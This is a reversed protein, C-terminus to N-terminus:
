AARLRAFRERVRERYAEPVADLTFDAFVTELDAADLGWARAVRADIEARLADREGAPLPGVEVGTAAAFDAFREDPCSLRAAARAIADFTPDDLPPIALGELIYFAVSTEVFRRAQWDFPLSNMIGLCCARARDDSELFTLHPAKHTLFTEPPVLCARITRSDTARSVDRFAVRAHGLEGALAAARKAKNASRAVISSAGPNPKQAKALAAPSAPCPRSEAGHPDWSDFSEGKWLQWGQTAGAWLGRDFTENLEQTAFAMWRGAGLPFPQGRRLKGLLDAAQQSPLLPVELAPGLAVKDLAIGPRSSQATFAALSDAVGAVELRHRAHPVAAEAVLLAITYQPHTDFIWRRNNLLFDIRRVTTESFLWSRFENSGKALFASRPLCVALVGSRSVLRRYRECFYQFLDPHGAGGVYGTDGHLYDRLSELREQEVQLQACLDSRAEKLVNMAKLRDEEGLARLGPQYRAFFAHEEITVKEWPPNGVVADFGGRDAFVEPFALPWHLAGHQRALAGAADALAPIEGRGIAEASAWLEERAGALGLPGAVWLDLLMRAGEVEHQAAQEAARSEAIEEPKRDLLGYLAEAAKAARELQEAVLMAPITTGGNRDLLQEASAVGVLSNGVRVNHDLYSLSLGPVFSALWLSIKAIEAGMPSLDVGYVCRRLVLRRLLAVDEVGIGYTAGAGARLDDLDRAVQPLPHEALFRAVRDALEDVVAVLFHASGCAPDLVRFRFLERAAQEPSERVLAEVRELHREFAPLVGRRVLHRVLPEPTYYVGGGKRGGEDTLWLLEGPAVTDADGAQAPVYRDNRADYRYARDALSLRLSLLGEYIHGLHGIELGSFDYGAGSEPDIGLAVLAPGLAADPISAAELAASGDFGAASFLDGNYAPVGLATDGNRMANVLARLRDWFKTAHADFAGGQDRADQVLQTLSGRAYADRTMPLHGASEAYLLFLMRFVLTLAAAELERRQADDGLDRGADRAFRGLALGLPPLVLQRIATDLRKRLGVGYVRAEAMLRSFGGEALYAPALLGLLPRDDESLAETDLELYRAVASGSEPAAEFLRLRAGAALIGYRANTRRCAELLLGEPPRGEPDLKAFASVDAVPHVVATPAGDFRALYGRDLQEIEYGAAALAERWSGRVTEAARALRPWDATSRLRDRFLHETGLGRVTLGAVGRRDLHELQEGLDRVAQLAPLAAARRLVDALARTEVLRVPDEHTVPGLAVVGDEKEPDDSVLLLPTPGGRTRRRWTARLQAEGSRSTRAVEIGNVLVSQDVGETETLVPRAAPLAVLTEILEKANLPM